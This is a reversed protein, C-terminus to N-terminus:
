RALEELAACCRTPAPPPTRSRRRGRGPQPQGRDPQARLGHRGPDERRARRRRPRRLLGAGRGAGDRALAARVAPDFAVGASRSAVRLEIRVGTRDALAEADAELEERWGDVAEPAPARADIWLRVHSPVTTLANPEVFLRAPTVVFDPVPDALDEAAVILRAAAAM